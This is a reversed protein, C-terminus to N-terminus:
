LFIKQKWYDFSFAELSVGGRGGLLVVEPTCHSLGMIRKNSSLVRSICCFQLSSSRLFYSAAGMDTLEKQSIKLCLIYKRNVELKCTWLKSKRSKKCYFQFLFFFAKIDCSPGLDKLWIVNNYSPCLPAKKKLIKKKGKISSAIDLNCTKLHKKSQLSM